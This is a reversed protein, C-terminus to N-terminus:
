AQIAQVLDERSMSAHREILGRAADVQGFIGWLLVGVVRGEDLYYVVGERNATKWSTVTELRADLKGVAEYGLDFLDSYFFPLHTWRVPEGAMSRGAARGMTLANDEHEVRVMEGLAASEFRAVDGAAWIDPASTRLGADVLIGNECAIGAAEALAVDPEVGLGAVVVDAEFEEGATTRVLTRLGRREVAAVGCGTLVRVGKGEYYSTVFRALEPPYVRAGIADEPFIMTVRKGASALAAAIETGIFGAGIVVAEPGEVARLRDYDDLTRFYMVRDGGAPLRRPRGGTALLLREYRHVEGSSDRVEHSRPDLALARRGGHRVLGAVEPLFVSERPKGAWLGKSLPPRAYPPHPDDGIMALAGDADVERIGAAAANGTMGGGIILYRTSAM